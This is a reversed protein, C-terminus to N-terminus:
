TRSAGSWCPHPPKASPGAWRLSNTASTRRCSTASPGHLIGDRELGRLTVTLMRQSIGDVARKLETFRRPGQSLNRVILLSWKDGVIGLVERAQCPDEQRAPRSEGGVTGSM